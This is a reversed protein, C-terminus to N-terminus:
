PCSVLVYKSAVNVVVCVDGVFDGMSVEEGSMLTDKISFYATGAALKSEVGFSMRTVAAQMKGLLGM